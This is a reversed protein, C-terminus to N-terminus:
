FFTQERKKSPISAPAADIEIKAQCEAYSPFHIKYQVYICYEKM